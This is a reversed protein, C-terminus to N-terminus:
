NEKEEINEFEPNAVLDGNENEIFLEKENDM